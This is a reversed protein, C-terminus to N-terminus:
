EDAAEEEEAGADDPLSEMSSRGKQDFEIHDQFGGNPPKKTDM